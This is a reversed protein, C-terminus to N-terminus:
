PYQKQDKAYGGDLYNFLIHPFLLWQLPFCWRILPYFAINITTEKLMGSLTTGSYHNTIMSTGATTRLGSPMLM